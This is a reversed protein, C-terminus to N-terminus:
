VSDNIIKGNHTEVEAGIRIAINKQRSITKALNELQDEQQNLIQERREKYDSIGPADLIAEDEDGEWLSKGQKFLEKRESAGPKDDQFQFIFNKFLIISHSM